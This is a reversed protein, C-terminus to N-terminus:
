SHTRSLALLEVPDPIGKLEHPGRPVLDIDSGLVLDSVTRTVLVESPGAAGMVRAAVHVGMGAVDGGRIEVMGTHIGCRIEVGIEAVSDVLAAGCEIAGVPDDFLALLGDGM